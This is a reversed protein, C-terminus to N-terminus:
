KVLVFFLCLFTARNKASLFSISFFETSFPLDSLWFGFPLFCSPFFRKTSISHHIICLICLWIYVNNHFRTPNLNCIHPRMLYKLIIYCNFWHLKSKIQTDSNKINTEAGSPIFPDWIPFINNNILSPFKTPIFSKKCNYITPRSTWSCWHIHLVYFVHAELQTSLVDAFIWNETRNWHITLFLSFSHLFIFLVIVSTFHCEANQFIM